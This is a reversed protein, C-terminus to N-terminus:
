VKIIEIHNITKLSRNLQKLCCFINTLFRKIQIAMTFHCTPWNEKKKM